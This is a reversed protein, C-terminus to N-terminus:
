KTLIMKMTGTYNGATLKYYYVGSPYNAANWNVSYTGSQLQENVLIEVERGLLDYVKLTAFSTVAIQFDITTNPNFPNPYNQSLLFDGPLEASIFQNNNDPTEMPRRWVGKSTTGAFLYGNLLSLSYVNNTNNFGDNMIIWSTGNNASEYVGNGTGAYINNGNFEFTWAATGNLTTLWNSGSNTSLLIGPLVGGSCGAYINDDKFAMASVLRGSTSIPSWDTGGNESLYIKSEGFLVFTAAYIKDGNVAVTKVNQNLSTQTWSNGYDASIYVGGDPSGQSVGAYIINQNVALSSINKNSLSTQVWTTGNNTSIFIGNPTGAYIKNSIVALTKVTQNNLSTQTWKGGNNKSIYVGYSITGAFLNSGRVALANVTLNGMGKSVKEWQSNSSQQFICLLFLCTFVASKISKWSSFGSKLKNLM